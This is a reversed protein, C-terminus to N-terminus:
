FIKQEEYWDTKDVSIEVYYSYARQDRDLLSLRVNNLIFLRGLEITIGSTDRPNISHRTYTRESGFGGGSGNGGVVGNGGDGTSNTTFLATKFDGTIV